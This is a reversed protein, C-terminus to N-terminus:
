QGTVQGKAVNDKCCILHGVRSSLSDLLRATATIFRRRSSPLRGPCPGFCFARSLPLFPGGDATSSLPPSESDHCHTPLDAPRLWRWSLLSWELAFVPSPSSSDTVGVQCTEAASTRLFPQSLRQELPPPVPRMIVHPKSAEALKSWDLPIIEVTLQVRFGHPVTERPTRTTATRALRGKLAAVPHRFSEAGSVVCSSSAVPRTAVLM